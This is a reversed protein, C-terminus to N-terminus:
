KLEIVHVETEDQDSYSGFVISGPFGEVKVFYSTEPNLENQVAWATYEKEGMELKLGQQAYNLVSQAPLKGKPGVAHFTIESGATGFMAGKWSGNEPCIEFWQGIHANGYVDISYEASTKGASAHAKAVLKAGLGPDSASLIDANKLVTALSDRSVPDGKTQLIIVPFDHGKQAKVTIALLSLGYRIDPKLLEEESGIIGWLAIKPDVLSERPTIWAMKELDDQWFHGDPELGYTKMKAMLNKVTDHSSDLSTIWIKKKM